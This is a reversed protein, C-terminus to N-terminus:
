QIKGHLNIGFISENGKDLNHQAMVEVTIKNWTKGIKTVIIKKTENNSTDHIQYTVNGTMNTTNDTYNIKAKKISNDRAYISSGSSELSYTDGNYRVGGEYARQATSLEMSKQDDLNDFSQVAGIWASFNESGTFDINVGSIGSSKTGTSIEFKEGNQKLHISQDIGMEIKPKLIIKAGETEVITYKPTYNSSINFGVIQKDLNNTSNTPTEIALESNKSIGVGTSILYKVQSSGEKYAGKLIDQFSKEEISGTFKIKEVLSLEHTEKDSPEIFYNSEKPRKLKTLNEIDLNTEIMSSPLSVYENWSFTYPRNKDDKIILGYFRSNTYKFTEINLHDKSMYCAQLFQSTTIAFDRNVGNPTNTKLAQWQSEPTVFNKIKRKNTNYDYIRTLKEGLITAMKIKENFSAGECAKSILEQREKYSSPEAEIIKEIKALLTGDIDLNKINNSALEDPFIISLETLVEIKGEGNVKFSNQALLSSDQHNRDVECPLDDLKDPVNEINMDEVTIIKALKVFDEDLLEASLSYCSLFCCSSYLLLKVYWDM